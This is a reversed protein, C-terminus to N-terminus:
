VDGGGQTIVMETCYAATSSDVVLDSTPAILEVKWVGAQHLAAYIGSLTVDVGLRHSDDLYDTLANRAAEIVLAPDPGSNIHLIAEVRFESIFASQVTVKDTLPRIEKGNLKANVKDLLTQSALGNGNQSLVYVVVEVPAPSSVSIDKVDPDASLGHFIYAGEPGATSIGHMALLIRRRYEHNDEKIVPRPPVATPDGEDLILRKVDFLAGLHELDEDEAYAVLVSLAADNVRQRDVLRWYAAVQLVVMAPDSEELADFAPDIEILTDKMQNFITEYDLEEIVAPKPLQSLDVNLTAM